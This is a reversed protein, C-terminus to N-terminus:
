PEVSGDASWTHFTVTVQGATFSQSELTFPDTPDGAEAEGYGHLGGFSSHDDVCAAIGDLWRKMERAVGDPDNMAGVLHVPVDFTYVRQQM